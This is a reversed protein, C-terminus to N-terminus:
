QAGRPSWTTAVVVEGDSVVRTFREENNAGTRLSWRRRELLDFGEVVGGQQVLILGAKPEAVTCCSPFSGTHVVSGDGTRLHHLRGTRDLLHLEDHHLMPSSTFPSGGVERRWVEAGTAADYAAIEGSGAVFVRGGTALPAADPVFGPEVSWLPAGDVVRHAAVAAGAAM